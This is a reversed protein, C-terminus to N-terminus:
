GKRRYRRCRDRLLEGATTQPRRAVVSLGGLVSRWGGCYALAAILVPSVRELPLKVVPASAGFLAAAFLVYIAYRQLSFVKSM